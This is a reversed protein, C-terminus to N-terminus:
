TGDPSRWIESVQNVGRGAMPLEDLVGGNVVELVIEQRWVFGLDSSAGDRQDPTLQDATRGTYIGVFDSRNGGISFSEQGPAGTLVVGRQVRYVPAGSLGGRGAIDVLFKPHGETPVGMDSALSARKWVPLVGMQRIAQPFGVAFLDSGPMLIDPNIASADNACFVDGGIIEINLVAIDFYSGCQQHVFWRPRSRDEDLYLPVEGDQFTQPTRAMYRFRVRDPMGGTRSLTTRATHHLGSFNHWATVLRIGNHARWFFGTGFALTHAGFAMQLQVSAVSIPDLTPNHLLAGSEFYRHYGAAFRSTNEDTM